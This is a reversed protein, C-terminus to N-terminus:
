LTNPRLLKVSAKYTFDRINRMLKEVAEIAEPTGYRLKKAFLYEAMGMVGIGIRRSEMAKIKIGPIHDPYKNVNIINDLFRVALEINQELM